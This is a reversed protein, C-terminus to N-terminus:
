GGSRKGRLCGRIRRGDEMVGKRRRTEHRGEGQKFGQVIAMIPDTMAPHFLDVELLGFWNM